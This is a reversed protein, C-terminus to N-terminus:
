YCFRPGDRPPDVSDDMDELVEKAFQRLFENESISFVTLSAIDCFNRIQEKNESNKALNALAEAAYQTTLADDSSLLGILPAICHSM